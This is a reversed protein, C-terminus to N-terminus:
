KRVLLIKYLGTSILNDNTEKSHEKLAKNLMYEDVIYGKLYKKKNRKDTEEISYRSYSIDKVM